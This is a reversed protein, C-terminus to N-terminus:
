IIYAEAGRGIPAFPIDDAMDSIGVSSSTVPEKVEKQGLLVLKNGAIEVSTRTNGEKDKWERAKLDGEVYVANGKKVYEGAIEATKGFLSVRFWTTEDKGTKVAVSFNAVAKGDQLFKVEADQGTRGIIQARSLNPM